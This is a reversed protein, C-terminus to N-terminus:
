FINNNIKGFSNNFSFWYYLLIDTVPHENSKMVVNCINHQCTKSFNIAINKNCYTLREKGFEKTTVVKTHKVVRATISLNVSSMVFLMELFSQIVDDHIVVIFEYCSTTMNGQVTLVGRKCLEVLICRNSLYYEIDLTAQLPFMWLHGELYVYQLFLADIFSIDNFKFSTPLKHPKLIDYDCNWKHIRHEYLVYLTDIVGRSLWVIDLSNMKQM